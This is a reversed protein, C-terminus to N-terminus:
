STPVVAARRYRIWSYVIVGLVLVLSVAPILPVPAMQPAVTATKAITAAAAEPLVTLAAVGSDNVLPALEIQWEWEGASPFTIAVMFQGTKKTPQAEFRLVEGTAKNTAIFIPTIPTLKDKDWQVAHVPNHGHQLVMFTLEKTEGAAINEVPTEMTITAWGGAWATPIILFLTLFTILLASKKM